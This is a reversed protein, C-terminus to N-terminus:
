ENVLKKFEETLLPVVEFLDGVIGYDAVNFIPADPDKNIAIIVKSAGMGAIHQIAGSIGCAIYLTPAVISGTQGVQFQNDIWGSDVAARSAGVAAGVVDALAELITFNEKAKMGRGGSIVIDAETLAPRSTIILAVDKLIVKLDAPDIDVTAEIVEAQRSSDPESAVFSKARVTALLPTSEIEVLSFASGTYVPRKFLLFKDQDQEIDVIDSALGVGLRQALRPALDKALATHGLLFAKPEEKRLLKTLASTYAGTTYQALQPSDLLYVQDAGYEAVEKTLNAINEGVIVAVLPEGKQDAIKRGQSLLEFSIKRIKGAAQEVFIWIGKSM